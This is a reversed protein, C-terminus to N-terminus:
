PNKFRKIEGSDIKELGKYVRAGEIKPPEKLGLEKMPIGVAQYEKVIDDAPLIERISSVKIVKNPLVLHTSGDLIAQQYKRFTEEDILSEQTEYDSGTVYINMKFYRAM